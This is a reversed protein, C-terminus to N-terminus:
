KRHSSGAPTQGENNILWEQLLENQLSQNDHNSRDLFHENSKSEGTDNTHRAFLSQNTLPGVSNHHLAHPALPRPELMDNSMTEPLSGNFLNLGADGAPFLFLGDGSTENQLMNSLPPPNAHLLQQLQQSELQTNQHHWVNMGQNAQQQQGQLEMQLLQQQQLSMINSNVLELEQQHHHYQYQQLPPFASVTSALQPNSPSLATSVFPAQGVHAGDQNLIDHSLGASQELITETLEHSAPALLLRMANQPSDHLSARSNLDVPATTSPSPRKSKAKKKRPEGEEESSITVKLLTPPRVDALMSMVEEHAAAVGAESLKPAKKPAPRKKESKQITSLLEPKDRLFAPHFFASFVLSSSLIPALSTLVPVAVPWACVADRELSYLYM